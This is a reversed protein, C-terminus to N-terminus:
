DHAVAILDAAFLNVNNLRLKKFIPAIVSNMDCKKFSSLMIRKLKEESFLNIHTPDQHANIEKGMLFRIRDTIIYANPVTIILKGHKKLHKKAEEIIKEPYYLHELVEGLIIVDFKTIYPWPEYINHHKIEVGKKSAMKIMNSDIDFGFLHNGKGFLQTLTGDRCGADLIKNGTGIIENIINSRETQYISFGKRNRNKHHDEYMKQLNVFSNTQNHM